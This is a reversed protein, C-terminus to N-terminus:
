SQLKKRKPLIQLVMASREKIELMACTFHIWTYNFHVVDCGVYSKSDDNPTQCYCFLEVNEEGQDKDQTNEITRTILERPVHKKHFEVLVPM